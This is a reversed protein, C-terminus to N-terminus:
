NCRLHKCLGDAVADPVAADRWAPNEDLASRVEKQAAQAQREVAQLQTQIRATRAESAALLQATRHAEAKYWGRSDLAWLLAGSAVAVAVVLAVLLRM